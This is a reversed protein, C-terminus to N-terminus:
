ASWQQQAFIDWLRFEAKLRGDSQVSIRGTVLAQAQIIRWDGFRPPKNFDSIQEIFSEQPLSRFLGSRNLNNAIVQVVDAGYKPDGAFTPLAIPLPDARGQNIDLELLAHAPRSTAALGVAAVAFFVFALRAFIRLAPRNMEQEV